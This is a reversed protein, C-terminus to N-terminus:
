LTRFDDMEENTVRPPLVFHLFEREPVKHGWPMDARSRMAYRVQREYYSRPYDVSDPLSMNAYLFDIYRSEDTASNCAAMMLAALMYLSFKKM